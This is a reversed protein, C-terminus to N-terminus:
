KEKIVNLASNLDLLCLRRLMGEDAKGQQRGQSSLLLTLISATLDPEWDLLGWTELDSYLAMLVQAAAYKKGSALCYRAQLIGHRVFARSRGPSVTGIRRLGAQFGEEMGCALAEHLRTEEDPENRMLLGDSATSAVSRGSVPASLGELWPLTKASAFPSHDKFKYALLEPFRHLLTALAESLCAAARLADLGELCRWLLAWGDFWFPAKGAARALHPLIEAYKKGEVAAVYEQVRDPPVGCTLQTKGEGDALPLQSLTGWNGAAFLVIAREDAPNLCLFHEALQRTSDIINRVVNPFVGPPIRGDKDMVALSTAISMNSARAHASSHPTAPEALHQTTESASSLPDESPIKNFIGTFSPALDAVKETLLAQLKGLETQLARVAESSSDMFCTTKACHEMRACLWALPALRRPIRSPLPYASDWWTDLLITLASVSAACAAVGNIKYEAYVAYVLIWVDKSQEILFDTASRSVIAWDTAETAHLATDKEIEAQMAEFEPSFSCDRGCPCAESIPKGWVELYKLANENCFGKAM